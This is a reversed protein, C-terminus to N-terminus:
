ADDAPPPPLLGYKPLLERLVATQIFALTGAWVLTLGIWGIPGALCLVTLLLVVVTLASVYGLNDLFLLFSKKVVSWLPEAPREAALPWQLLAASWWFLMPYIFAAGLWHLPAAPQKLFYLADVALVMTVIVQLGALALGRRWLRAVSVPLEWWYPDDHAMLRRTHEFLAATVPGTGIGAAAAGGLVPFFFVATGRGRAVLSLLGCGGAGLLIALGIWLMSTVLVTGLYDSAARLGRKLARAFHPRPAPRPRSARPRDGPSPAAAHPASAPGERRPGGAEAPGM